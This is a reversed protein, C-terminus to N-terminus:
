KVETAVEPKPAPAPLAAAEALLKEGAAKDKRKFADVAKAALGAAETAGGTTYALVADKAAEIAGSLDNEQTSTNSPSSTMTGTRQSEASRVDGDSSVRSSAQGSITGSGTMNITVSVAREQGVPSSQPSGSTQAAAQPAVLPATQCAALALALFPAAFHKM